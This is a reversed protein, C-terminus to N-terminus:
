RPGLSSDHAYMDQSVGYWRYNINPDRIGDLVQLTPHPEVRWSGDWPKKSTLLSGLFQNLEEGREHFGQTLPSSVAVLQTLNWDRKQLTQPPYIPNQENLFKLLYPKVAYYIDLNEPKQPSNCITQTVLSMNGDYQKM